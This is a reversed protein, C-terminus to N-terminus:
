SVDIPIMEIVWTVTEIFNQVLDTAEEESCTVTFGEGTADLIAKPYLFKLIGLALSSAKKM